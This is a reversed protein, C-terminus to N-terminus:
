ILLIVTLVAILISYFLIRTLKFDVKCLRKYFIAGDLNISLAAWFIFSNDSGDFDSVFSAAVSAAM